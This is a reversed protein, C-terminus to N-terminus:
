SQNRPKPFGRTQQAVWGAMKKVHGARPTVVSTLERTWESVTIASFHDVVARATDLDKVMEDGLVGDAGVLTIRVGMRGVPQLVASASEGHDSLFKTLSKVVGSPLKVAPAKVDDTSQADTTM